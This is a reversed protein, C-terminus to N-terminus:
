LISMSGGCTWRLVNTLSSAMLGRKLQCPSLVPMRIYRSDTPIEELIGAELLDAVYKDGFEKEAPSYNRPPCWIPKDTNLKIEVNQLEGTYGPLDSLTYAFADHEELLVEKMRQKQEETAEPHNGYIWKHETDQVWRPNM